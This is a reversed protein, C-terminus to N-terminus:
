FGRAEEEIKARQLNEDTGLGDDRAAPLQSIHRLYVIGLHDVGSEVAGLHQGRKGLYDVRWRAM